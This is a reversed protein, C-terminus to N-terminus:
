VKIYNKAIENKESQLLWLHTQQTTERNLKQNQSRRHDNSSQAASVGLRFVAATDRMSSLDGKFQGKGVSIQNPKAIRRLRGCGDVRLSTRM